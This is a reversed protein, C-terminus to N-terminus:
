DSKFVAIRKSRNRKMQGMKENEGGKGNRRYDNRGRSRSIRACVGDVSSMCDLKCKGEKKASKQMEAPRTEQM